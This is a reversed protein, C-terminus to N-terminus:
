TGDVGPGSPIGLAAGTDSRDEAGKVCVMDGAPADGVNDRKATRVEGGATSSEFVGRSDSGVGGAVRDGEACFAGADSGGTNAGLVANGDEGITISVVDGRPVLSGAPADGVAGGIEDGVIVGAVTGEVIGGRDDGM